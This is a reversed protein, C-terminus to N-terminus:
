PYFESDYFNQNMIDIRCCVPNRQVGMWKQGRHLFLPDRYSRTQGTSDFNTKIRSIKPEPENAGIDNLIPHTDQSRM